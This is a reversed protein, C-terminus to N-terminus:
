HNIITKRELVSWWARIVMSVRSSVLSLDFETIEEAHEKMSDSVKKMQDTLALVRKVRDAATSPGAM